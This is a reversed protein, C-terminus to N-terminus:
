IYLRMYYENKTIIYLKQSNNTWHILSAKGLTSYQKQPM